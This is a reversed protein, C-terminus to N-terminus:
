SVDDWLVAIMMDFSIGPVGLLPVGLEWVAGM